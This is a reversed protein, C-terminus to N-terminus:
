RTHFSVKSVQHEEGTLDDVEYVQFEENLMSLVYRIGMPTLVSVEVHDKAAIFNDLYLGSDASVEVFVEDFEQLSKITDLNAEQDPDM